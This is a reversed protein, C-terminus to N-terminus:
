ALICKIDTISVTNNRRPDIIFNTDTTSTTNFVVYNVGDISCIIKDNLYDIRFKFARNNPLHTTFWRVGYSVEYVTTGNKTEYNSLTPASIIGLINGKNLDVYFGVSNSDSTWLFVPAGYNHMDIYCIFEIYSNIKLPILNNQTSNSSNRIKLANYTDGSYILAENSYTFNNSTDYQTPDGIIPTDIKTVFDFNQYLTYYYPQLINGDNYVGRGNYVVGATEYVTRTNYVTAEGVM